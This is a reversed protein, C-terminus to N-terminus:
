FTSEWSDIKAKARLGAAEYLRNAGESESWSNVTLVRCGVLRLRNTAEALLARGLGRTRYDPVTGVPELEAIGSAGDLWATCFAAVEGGASLLLLDLEPVYSPARQVIRYVEVSDEFGFVAKVARHFERMEGLTELPKIVFGEPLTVPEAGADDLPKERHVYHGPARAYNHSRLLQGLRTNAAMAEIRLPRAATGKQVYRGEAWALMTKAMEPRDPDLILAADRDSEFLVAGALRGRETEWLRIDQHWGQAGHVEEDAIRRQAWIDFRAFSWANWYPARDYARRILTGILFLDDRRQFPRESM